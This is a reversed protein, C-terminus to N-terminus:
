EISTGVASTEPIEVFIGQHEVLAFSASNDPWRVVLAAYIRHALLRRVSDYRWSTTSMFVAYSVRYPIVALHALLRLATLRHQIM